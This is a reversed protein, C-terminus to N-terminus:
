KDSAAAWNEVALGQIRSFENENNTVLIRNLSLAHAAILLDLPGITKGKKELMARIQGYSRSAQEDYPLIDFPILFEDLRKKNLQKNTSKAVGYWLESVTVSSVAIQGIDFAKFKEIVSPPKRNMIYICINTDILYNM